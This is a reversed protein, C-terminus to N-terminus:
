RGAAVAEAECADGGIPLALSFAAQTRQTLLVEALARLEM